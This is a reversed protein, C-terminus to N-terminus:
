SRLRRSDVFCGGFFVGHDHERNPFRSHAALSTRMSANENKAIATCWYRKPFRFIRTRFNHITNHRAASVAQALVGFGIWTGVDVGACAERDGIKTTVALGSAVSAPM